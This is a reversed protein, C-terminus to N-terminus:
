SAEAEYIPSFLSCRYDVEEQDIVTIGSGMVDYRNGWLGLNWAGSVLSGTADMYLGGGEVDTAGVLVPGAAGTGVPNWGPGGMPNKAFRAWAGRMASSLAYEQTTVNEPPYTSYVISIESSHYVGLGPYGQTNVFSANYYYRWAPIGVSATANAWLAQPCQFIFETYIQAIQDFQTNIGNQGLPYAAEIASILTPQDGLTATLFATTDNQGVVFVRGEQADTGGLVPVAAINGALRRGAPDSVYTVNDPVPNFDLSQVDIIKRIQKAPAARVCALDSDYNGPCGLAASLNRWAPVSSPNESTPGYSLQGSQAIAGRFPPSSGAPFSTLLADVSFAGASEGFITVKDPSGGFAAINRQVWDLGLRQDLFGLNHGTLPLEHSAPFGFVTAGTLMNRELIHTSRPHCPKPCIRTSSIFLLSEPARLRITYGHSPRAFSSLSSEGNTRYNVTVVIVDEYAAFSSGDYAPQGANGFQLSGGYIWYM